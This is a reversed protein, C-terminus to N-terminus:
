YVFKFKDARFYTKNYELIKNEKTYVLGKKVLLLSNLKINLLRSEDEGALLIEFIGEAHDPYLNYTEKLIDYLSNNFKKNKLKPYKKLPLYAKELMMPEKEIIRLRKIYLVKDNDLVGLKDKLEDNPLIIDDKIVKTEFSLGRKTLFDSTGELDFINTKLKKKSVFTGKGNENTCYGEAILGRIAKRITVRSINLQKCLERETPLQTGPKLENDQIKERITKQIQFFIPIHSNKNIDFDIKM